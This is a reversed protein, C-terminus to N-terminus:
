KLDKNYGGAVLMPIPHNAGSTDSKWGQAAGESMVKRIRTHAMRALWDKSISAKNGIGLPMLFPEHNIKAGGTNMHEVTSLPATDGPIYTGSPDKLVRTTNTIGRVLTEIDRRDLAGPDVADIAHVLFKQTARMGQTRLVDHMSVPGNDLIDGKKVDAGVHFKMANGPHNYLEETEGNKGRIVINHGGVSSKHASEIKGDIGSM